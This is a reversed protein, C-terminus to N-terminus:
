NHHLELNCVHKKDANRWRCVVLPTYHFQWIRLINKCRASNWLIKDINGETLKMTPIYKITTKVMLQRDMREDTATSLRWWWLPLGLFTGFIILHIANVITARTRHRFSFDVFRFLFLTRWCELVEFFDNESMASINWNSLLPGNFEMCANSSYSVDTWSSCILSTSNLCKCSRCSATFSNICQNCLFCLASSLSSTDNWSHRSTAKTTSLSNNTKNRIRLM